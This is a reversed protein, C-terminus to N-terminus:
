PFALLAAGPSIVLAPTLSAGAAAKLWGRWVGHGSTGGSVDAGM